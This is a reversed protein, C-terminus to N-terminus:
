PPGARTERSGSTTRCSSSTQSSGGSATSGRGSGRVTTASRASPTTGGFRHHVDLACSALFPEYDRANVRALNRRTSQEVLAHYV